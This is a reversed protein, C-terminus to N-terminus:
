GIMVALPRKGRRTATLRRCRRCAAVPPPPKLLVRGYRIRNYSCTAAVAVAYLVAVSREGAHRPSDKSAHSLSRPVSPLAHRTM